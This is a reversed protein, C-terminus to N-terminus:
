ALRIRSCSSCRLHLWKFIHLKDESSADHPHPTENDRTNSCPDVVTFWLSCWLASLCHGALLFNLQLGVSPFTISVCNCLGTESSTPSPTQHHVTFTLKRHQCKLILISSPTGTANGCVQFCDLLQTKFYQFTHQVSRVKRQWIERKQVGMM